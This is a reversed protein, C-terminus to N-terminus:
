RDGFDLPDYGVWKGQDDYPAILRKAAAAQQDAAWQQRQAEALKHEEYAGHAALVAIGTGLVTNVKQVKPRDECTANFELWVIQSFAALSLLMLPTPGQSAWVFSVVMIVAWFWQSFRTVGDKPRNYGEPHQSETPM